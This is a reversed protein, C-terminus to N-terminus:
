VVGIVRTIIRCMDGFYMSIILVLIFGVVGVWFHRIYVLVHVWVPEPVTVRRLHTLTGIVEVGPRPLRYLPKEIDHRSNTHRECCPLVVCVQDIAEM